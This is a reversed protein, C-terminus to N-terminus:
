PLSVGGPEARPLTFTFPGDLEHITIGGQVQVLLRVIGIEHSDAPGADSVEVSVYDARGTARITVPRCGTRHANRVLNACVQQFRLADARVWLGPEGEVRVVMDPFSAACEALQEDLGLVRTDLPVARPAPAAVVALDEILLSVRRALVRSHDHMRETVEQSLPGGALADVLAELGLLPARIEDRVALAAARTQSGPETRVEM